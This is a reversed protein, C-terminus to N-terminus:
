LHLDEPKKKKFFEILTVSENHFSIIKPSQMQSSIRLEKEKFKRKHRTTFSGFISTPSPNLSPCGGLFQYCRVPIGFM